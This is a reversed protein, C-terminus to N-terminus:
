LGARKLRLATAADMVALGLLTAAAAKAARPSRARPAVGDAYAAQAISLAARGTMWAWRPRGAALGPVLVLDALGIARVGMSHDELGIPRTTADPAVALATGAVLTIGAIIKPVHEPNV